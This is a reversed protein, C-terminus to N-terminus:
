DLNWGSASPDTFDTFQHVKERKKPEWIRETPKRQWSPWDLLFGSPALIRGAEPAIPHTKVSSFPVFEVRMPPFLPVM